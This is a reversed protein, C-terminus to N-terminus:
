LLVIITSPYIIPNRHLIRSTNKIKVYFVLSLGEPSLDQIQKDELSVQINKMASQSFSLGTLSILIVLAFYASKKM